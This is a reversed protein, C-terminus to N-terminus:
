SATGLDEFTQDLQNADFGPLSVMAKVQARQQGDRPIELLLAGGRNDGLAAVASEQIAFDLALQVDRGVQPQHITRRFWDSWLDDAEGRLVADFGAEAGSTGHLISYYGVVHGAAPQPYRRQQENAPGENRALEQGSQDLISGRQLRLEAELGRPNDDRALLVEARFIGWFVLSIGVLLFAGLLVKLLNLITDRDPTIPPIEKM